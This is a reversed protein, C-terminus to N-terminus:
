IGSCNAPLLLTRACHHRGLLRSHHSMSLEILAQEMFQEFIKCTCQLFRFLMFKFQQLGELPSPTIIRKLLYDVLTTLQSVILGDGEGEESWRGVNKCCMINDLTPARSNWFDGSITTLKM